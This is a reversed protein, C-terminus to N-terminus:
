TVNKIELARNKNRVNRIQYCKREMKGEFLINKSLICKKHM